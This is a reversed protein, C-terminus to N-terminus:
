FKNKQKTNFILNLYGIIFTLRENKKLLESHSKYRIGRGMVQNIKAMLHTGNYTNTKYKKFGIRRFGFFKFAIGTNKRNYEDVIRKKERDNLETYAYCNLNNM